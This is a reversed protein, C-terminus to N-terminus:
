KLPSLLTLTLLTLYVSPSLFPLHSLPPWFFIGAGRLILFFLPAVILYIIFYRLRLQRANGNHMGQERTLAAGTCLSLSLSSLSLSLARARTHTHTLTQTHTHTLSHTHTHTHTHTYYFKRSMAVGSGRAMALIRSM